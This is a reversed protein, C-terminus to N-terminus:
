RGGLIHNYWEKNKGGRERRRRTGEAHSERAFFAQPTQGDDVFDYGKFVIGPFPAECPPVKANLKKKQPDIYKVQWWELAVWVHAPPEEAAAGWSSGAWSGANCTDAGSSSGAWSQKGWSNAGWSEEGWSESAGKGPHLEEPEPWSEDGQSAAARKGEGKRWPPIM